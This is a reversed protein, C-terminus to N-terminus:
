GAFHLWVNIATTVVSIACIAILWRIFKKDDM